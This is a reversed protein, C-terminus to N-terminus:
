LMTCRPRGLAKVLTQIQELMLCSVFLKKAGTFRQKHWPHDFRSDEQDEGNIIDPFHEILFKVVEINWFIIADNMLMILFGDGMPIVTPCRRFTEGLSILFQLMVQPNHALVMSLRDIKPGCERVLVDEDGEEQLIKVAADPGYIWAVALPEWDEHLYESLLAGEKLMRRAVTAQSYRLAWELASGNGYRANHRYLYPNLLHYLQRTTRALSNIDSEYNFYSTVLLLLENPLKLLFM